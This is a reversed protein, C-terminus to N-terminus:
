KMKTEAIAAGETTLEVVRRERLALDAAFAIQHGLLSEEIRTVGQSAPEGNLVSIFDHILRQDGGGHGDSTIDVQVSEERHDRGDHADLTRLKIWGAEMNGEIEGDTGIIHITRCSRAAGGFLNHSATIGNVFEVIVSQHDLADNDCHWVCRGYPNNNKLSQLKQEVTPEDIHEIPEWVYPGWLNMEIYQKRASYPCTSEIECGDLCRPASGAPANEERFQTLAGFSAVSRVPVDGVMWAIIDMDHCCKALLIPSSTKRANWRGRVFATAMHHYSLNEATHMSVISGIRGDSLLQKIKQYFPAYRLVHCIMVVRNNESAIEILERSERESSAIPKELLVDYGSCLLAVTSPYHMTDMTGNIAARAIPPRDTLHEYGPFCAEPPINHIRAIRERRVNDPECVGVVKMHDPSALAYEAYGESRHGAGVVVVSIPGNNKDAIM